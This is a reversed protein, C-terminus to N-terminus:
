RTRLTKLTEKIESLERRVNNLQENNKTVAKELDRVAKDIDHLQKVDERLYVLQAELSGARYVMGAVALILVCMAILIQWDVRKQGNM